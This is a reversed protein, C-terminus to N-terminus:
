GFWGQLDIVVDLAALSVLCIQSGPGIRVAALNPRVDNAVYNVNSVLPPTATCPGPYATLYGPASPHVVTLNVVAATSAPPVGPNTGLAVTLPRRPVLRGKITPHSATGARTDVLRQPAVGFWGSGSAGLWGAADVIVEGDRQHVRM